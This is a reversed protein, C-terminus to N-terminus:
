PLTGVVPGAAPLDFPVDVCTMQESSNPIHYACMHAVYQGAPACAREMACATQSTGCHDLPFMTADWSRSVPVAPTTSAAPCVVHGFSCDACEALTCCHETPNGIAIEGGAVDRVSLWSPPACDQGSEVAFWMAGTPAELRFVVADQQCSQGDTIGGDTKTKSSCSLVLLGVAAMRTMAKM